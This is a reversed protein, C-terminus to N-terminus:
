DRTITNIIFNLKLKEFDNDIKEAMYNCITEPLGTEEQLQKYISKIHLQRYVCYNVLKDLENTTRAFEEKTMPFDDEFEYNANYRLICMNWITDLVYKAQFESEIAIDRIKKYSSYRNLSLKIRKQIDEKCTYTDFVSTVDNLNLDYKKALEITKNLINIFTSIIDEDKGSLGKIYDDTDKSSVNFFNSVVEDWEPYEKDLEVISKKIDTLM